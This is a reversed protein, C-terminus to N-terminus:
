ALLKKVLIKRTWNLWQNQSERPIEKNWTIKLDCVNRYIVKRNVFLFILGLSDYIM